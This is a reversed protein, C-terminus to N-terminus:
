GQGEAKVLRKRGKPHESAAALGVFGLCAWPPVCDEAEDQLVWPSGWKDGLSAPSEAHVPLAHAPGLDAWSQAVGADTSSCSWCTSSSPPGSHSQFGCLAHGWPSGCAPPCHSTCCRQGGAAADAPDPLSPGPPPCQAIGVWYPPCHRTYAPPLTPGGLTLPGQPPPPGPPPEDVHASTDAWPESPHIISPCTVRARGDCSAKGM